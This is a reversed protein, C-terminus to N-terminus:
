RSPSERPWLFTVNIEHLRYLKAKRKEAVRIVIEVSYPQRVRLGHHPGLHGSQLPVQCAEVM